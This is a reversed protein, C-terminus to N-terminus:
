SFVSVAREAASILPTPIIGIVLVGLAAVGLSAGLSWSVPVREEQAPPVLYMQGVVRLYYYAAVVSNLVAVIVLWVLDSQVATNFIYVKAVFGATPPIGTLSILCLALALALLPSRRAMGAYDAIADSGVRSSIAIVAIFAGLNTFAYTGLFFVVGGAGLAFNGSAASIAAIGVMINGAQAISSYGLLRKINTQMLATVNGVTMSIAAVAAFLNSWDSSIFPASLGDYFIRLVVAFGAAKSAVSLFAAVPTPSGEYVDPVWMQFPVVATKFALGAALLVMSLVLAGRLNADAGAVAAAISPEGPPAILKTTGSLGFLFAMGYLLVATSIAGLLLYKLGAESSRTDKLLAAMVYQSIATLELAVFIAILDRGGALLMMGSTALLILAYYEGQYRAFRQGYDISALIVLIAVGLFLFMFFLSFNDVVLSGHFATGQRDRLVLSVAWAVAGVIGVLSGCALIAGRRTTPMGERLALDALIILGASVMLVLEPGLRDIDPLM